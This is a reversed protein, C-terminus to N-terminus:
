SLAELGRIGLDAGDLSARLPTTCMPTSELLLAREVGAASTAM